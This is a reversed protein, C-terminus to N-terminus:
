KIESLLIMDKLESLEVPSKKDDINVVILYGKLENFKSLVNMLKIQDSEILKGTEESWIERTTLCGMSPTFPFYSKNKYFNPDITTGHAIIENRGAKGAYYAEYIPLYSKWSEPLLNDYLDSNWISDDAQNQFYIIPNVEFPLVTQLNPIPGIFINKSVDIGQISLIGEPTNGNTIYGPLDSIARALQPVSFIEGKDDRLFKGDSNRIVLLGPYDRNIRQLSYIVIKDSGFNKSLLDALPPTNIKTRFETELDYKLMKTIPEEQPRMFKSEFEYTLLKLTDVSVSDKLYHICMAFLKSNSLYPILPKVEQIFENQYLSYLVELLARQFALSRNQFDILSNKIADDTTQNRFQILEMAWFASLYKEETSDTLPLNLSQIITKNITKNLFNERETKITSESFFDEKKYIQSSCSCFIVTILIVLIIKM